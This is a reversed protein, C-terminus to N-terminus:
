KSERKQKSVQQRGTEQAVINKPIGGEGHCMYEQTINGLRM